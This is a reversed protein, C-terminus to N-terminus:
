KKLYVVAFNGYYDIVLNEDNEHDKAVHDEVIYVTNKKANELNINKFKYQGFSSVQEFASGENSMKVTDIYEATDIQDYFLAFIYSSNISNTIEINEYGLEGSEEISEGLGDYFYEGIFDQHKGFYSFCFFGFLILFFSFFIIKLNPIRRLIDETGVATFYILPIFIINLRNINGQIILLLFFSAVLLSFFIQGKKEKSMIYSVIGWFTLPLLMIYTTGIGRISNWPLTDTQFIIIKMGNIFNNWISLFLNGDLNLITSQRSTELKPITFFPTVISEGGFNNIVVFLIMPLAVVFIVSILKIGDSIKIKKKIINVGLYIACFAPIFFYSTGYSYCALGLVVGAFYTYMKKEQALVLFFVALLVLEPFINSELAWRSKMIHWPNIAFLLTAMISFEKGKLKETLKQFIVISVCGMLAMPIRLTYVNLGFISIFPIIMYAYLANQGSGWSILHVPMFVGNRDIGNQLISFAEYGISAEDQNLGIPASEIGVIRFLSGALVILFLIIESKNKSLFKKFYVKANLKKNRIKNSSRDKLFDVFPKKM